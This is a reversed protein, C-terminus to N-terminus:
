KSEFKKTKMVLYLKISVIVVLDLIKIDYLQLKIFLLKIRTYRDFSGDAEAFLAFVM